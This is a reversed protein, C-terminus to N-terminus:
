SEPSGASVMDRLLDQLRSASGFHSLIRDHYNRALEEAATARQETAQLHKVLADSRRDANEVRLKADALQRACEDLKSKLATSMEQWQRATENATDLDARSAAILEQKDTELLRCRQQLLAICDAIKALMDFSVDFDRPDDSQTPAGPMDEAIENKIVRLMNHINPVDRYAQAPDRDADSRPPRTPTFVM